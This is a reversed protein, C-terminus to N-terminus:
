NGPAGFGGAGQRKMMEKMMLAMQNDYRTYDTPPAFSAEDPKALKVDKFLMTVPQGDELAEIKLPFKKLDTANWVTSTHKAGQDDTVVVKNKICAHGDLTEKGLESTEVKYKSAVEPSENDPIASEVYAKLGTYITYSSKKDPRAIIRMKDMGMAKMQEAAGPPLSSGKVQTLDMEFCSKGESFAIKGPMTLQNGSPDKTTMEITASFSTVDGLLKSMSGGFNPGKPPGGPGGPGPGRPGPQASVSLLSLGLAAVLLLQLKTKM